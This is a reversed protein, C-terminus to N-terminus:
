FGATKNSRKRNPSAASPGPHEQFFRAFERSADPGAPDTYSGNPTGGSWAHGAGHITWWEVIPRGRRDAYVQRTYARGGPVQGQHVTARAATEGSGPPAAADIWQEVLHDANCSQVTCDRDGHFLILPVARDISTPPRARGGQRMALLASPLDHAAGPALGSHVGVAAYLDPYTAALIAAMAGGASLGAAYVRGTAVRFQSMVQRTIGAILAPEGGERRQHAAQFWNWCKSHNAAADQAPYAVLFGEAEAVANMGTGAAFDDPGQTCGHLMVVLPMAQGNYRSPIYLKYSRTGAPATHTGSIWQGPGAVDAAPRLRPGHGLLGDLGPLPLENPSILPPSVVPRSPRVRRVRARTPSPGEVNSKATEANTAASPPSEVAAATPGVGLQGLRDRPRGANVEDASPSPAPGSRLTRQILATAEALRGARTLRTAEM